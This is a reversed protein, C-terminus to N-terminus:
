ICQDDTVALFHVNTDRGNWGFIELGVTGDNEATGDELFGVVGHTL